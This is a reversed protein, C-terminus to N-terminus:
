YPSLFTSSLPMAKDRRMLHTIVSGLTRASEEMADLDAALPTLIVIIEEDPVDGKLDKIQRAVDCVSVIWTSMPM